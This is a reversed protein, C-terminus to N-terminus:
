TLCSYAVRLLAQAGQGLREKERHYLRPYFIHENAITTKLLLAKKSKLEKTIMYEPLWGYGLGKLIAQKKTHFDNVLFSSNMELRETSLGLQSTSGRVCIYTHRSLEYIPIEGKIQNLKHQSGAILLMRLPKLKISPSSVQQSNVITLMMDAEEQEFRKEVDDLCASSVRIETPFDTENIKLLIEAITDFNIVGDYILRLRPEWGGQLKKCVDAMEDKTQILRLCYQHILKGEATLQTRYHSRDLLTLGTEEELTKILYMIASHGKHLQQAAKQFTGHNVVANLALAQDLTINM